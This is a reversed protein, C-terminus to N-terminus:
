NLKEAKEDSPVKKEITGLLKQINVIPLVYKQLKTGALKYVLMGRSSSVANEVLLNMIEDSKFEFSGEADINLIVLEKLDTVRISTTTVFKMIENAENEILGLAYIITVDINMISKELDFNFFLRIGVNLQNEKFEPIENNRFEFSKEIIRIIKLKSKAM